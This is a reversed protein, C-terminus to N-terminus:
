RLATLRKSLFSGAVGGLACLVFAYALSVELLILGGEFGPFDVAKGSLQYASTVVLGLGASPIALSTALVAKKRPSIYATVFSAVFPSLQLLCWFVRPHIELMTAVVVILDASALIIFGIVWSRRM